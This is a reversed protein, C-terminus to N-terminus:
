HPKHTLECSFYKNLSPSSSYAKSYPKISALSAALSMDLSTDLLPESGGNHLDSLSPVTPPTEDVVEDESDDIAFQQFTEDVLNQLDHVRHEAALRCM